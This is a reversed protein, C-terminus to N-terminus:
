LIKSLAEPYLNYEVSHIKEELSELTDKSDISVKRQLIIPGTDVGEDVYHVTVGTEKVKANWADRIGHAGPFNPLLAPHINVIRGRYRRVFEPSLIRMFGALLIIDVKSQDIQRIMEAEFAAKDSFKKREVVQVYVGLKKAKEIAGAGPNDSIVLCPEAPIEGSKMRQILNQM